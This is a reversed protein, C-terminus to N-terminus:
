KKFKNVIEEPYFPRGDYKLMKEIKLGTEQSVLSALEGSSNCELCFVSEKKEIFSKVTQTPFPWVGAVHMFCVQPLNKLAELIPGKNSGWSILRVKAQPNGYVKALPMEPRIAMLKRNRKDMMETRESSSETTLGYEDHEYSNALHVGGKEGIFCRPSVGSKTLKYRLFGKKPKTFSYRNNLHAAKYPFNSYYSESINKDLLIIVPVQFKEALQFSLKTLDFCEQTDGPAFIIRPFNDQSAHLMFQLDGQGSWTPMGTAPGPRMSNVMVIPTESIGSLGLGETMLCFGGGSTATMTRVGMFSAGLAQNIATIEDEPQKVVLDAKEAKEALYHLISTAPTMPYSTYFKLGGALAGLAVAENGTIVMREKVKKPNDFVFGTETYNKEVYDFGAQSSRQNGAVVEQGKASFTENLLKQLATLPLGMLKLAAGLAVSNAMLPHGNDQAIKTLPISVYKGVAGPRTKGDSPDFVVISSSTLEKQHAAVTKNDYALLLDVKFLQSFAKLCSAHIQFTNHGGRILSPYEQYSFTSYGLRSLTKALMLGTVKVGEGAKGGIKINIFTKVM